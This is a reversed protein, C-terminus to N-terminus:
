LIWRYKSLFDITIEVSKIEASDEDLILFVIERKKCMSGLSLNSGQIRLSRRDRFRAKVPHALASLPGTEPTRAGKPLSVLRRPAAMLHKSM